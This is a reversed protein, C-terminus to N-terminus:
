DAGRRRLGDRDGTDGQLLVRDVRRFPGDKDTPGRGVVHDGEAGAADRALHDGLHHRADRGRDAGERRAATARGEGHGDVAHRGDVCGDAGRRRETAQDSVAVVAVVADADLVPGHHEGYRRVQEAAAAVVIEIHAAAAAVVHEDAPGPTVLEGAPAAAVDEDAAGAGVHEAGAGAAVDDDAFR